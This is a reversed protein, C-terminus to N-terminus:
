SVPWLSFVAQLWPQFPLREAIEQAEPSKSHGLSRGLKEAERLPGVGVERGGRSPLISSVILGTERTNQIVECPYM